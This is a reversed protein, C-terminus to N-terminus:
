PRETKEPLEPKALLVEEGESLGSQIEVLDLDSLGIVVERREPVSEKRVYVVKTGGEEFVATVPVALVNEASGLPVGMSVSVGPKLGHQAGELQGTVEFGKINNKVTALPAIFTVVAESDGKAPDGGDPPKVTMRQGPSLKGADLQNVHTNILLRSLDALTMLSTGSNISAAAVVVQGQSVPIQLVTGDFPAVIRTKEIRDEVLQRRRLSRELENEGIRLDAELNVFEEKSLLKGSFLQKAREYNGRIREVALRAGEIEADVGARENLLDTADITALPEGKKVQQGPTVHIKALQGGIEPKVDVQFAPTVQGSLPLVPNISARVVKRAPAPKKAEGSWAAFPIWDMRWAVAALILLLAILYKIV